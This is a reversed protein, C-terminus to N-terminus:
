KSFTNPIVAISLSSQPNLSQPNLTAKHFINNETPITFPFLTKKQVIREFVSVFTRFLSRHRKKYIEVLPNRFFNIKENDIKSVKKSLHRVTSM